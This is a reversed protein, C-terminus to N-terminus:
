FGVGHWVGKDFVTCCQVRWGSGSVLSLWGYRQEVDEERSEVEMPAMLHKLPDTRGPDGVVKQVNDMRSRLAFFIGHALETAVKEVSPPKIDESLVDLEDVTCDIHVLGDKLVTCSKKSGYVLCRAICLGPQHAKCSEKYGARINDLDDADHCQAVCLLGLVNKHASYQEWRAKGAAWCPLKDGDIFRLFLVTGKLEPLQVPPMDYLVKSVAQVLARNTAGVSKVAIHLCGQDRAEQSFDVMSM